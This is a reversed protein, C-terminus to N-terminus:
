LRQAPPKWTAGVAKFVARETACQVLNGAADYLGYQNLKWGKEKALQRLAINHKYSGTFHVLAFAYEAPAAYFLDVRVYKGRWKCLLCTRRAGNALIAIIKLSTNQLISLVESLGMSCLVDVDKCFPRRRRVSGVAVTGNVHRVIFEALDNATAWNIQEAPYKVSAVAEAPVMSIYPEFLVDGVSKLGAAVLQKARSIGIGPVATLQEIISM